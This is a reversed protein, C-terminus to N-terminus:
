EFEVVRSEAFKRAMSVVVLKKPMPVVVGPVRKEMWPAALKELVPVVVM